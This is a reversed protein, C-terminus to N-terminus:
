PCPLRDVGFSELVDSVSPEFRGPRHREATVIASLTAVCQEVDTNVVVYDYERYAAIETRAQQLRRQITEEGDQKRSRLRAELAAPSPPLLFITVCSLRQRVQRAGQVDIVLMVDDGADLARRTAERSTGYYNGFVSAWELFEDRDIMAEFTARDVFHYHVGDVEGPRPARSAFSCSVRLQVAREVLRTVVTTKGTGSPASVVVVRGERESREM